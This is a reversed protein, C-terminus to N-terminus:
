SILVFDESMTEREINGDSDIFRHRVRLLSESLKAAAASATSSSSRDSSGSSFVFIPYDTHRQGPVIFDKVSEILEKLESESKVHFAITCSPDMKVIPMKRACNCHFSHLSFDLLHQQQVADQCLHPDLYILRDDQAGIFYLSHKPRGGIIGLTNPHAFLSKVCETYVPNFKEGGLRVPIFIIVGRWKDQPEQISTQPETVGSSMSAYGSSTVTSAATQSNCMTTTGDNYLNFTSRNLSSNAQTSATAAAPTGNVRTRPVIESELDMFVDNFEDFEDDISALAADGCVRDEAPFNNLYMDEPVATNHPEPPATGRDRSEKLVLSSRRRSSVSETCLRVVDGVFVTCDQAVYSTINELIPNEIFAEALAQSLIHATTAPGYWDGARKGFSSGIQVLRHISFPSETDDLFWKIIMRHIMDTKADSRSGTWRWERGLYQTVFAQALLMQGSRLMCGWGCDSTFHSGEIREFQRRYTLWIRSYYDQRFQALTQEKRRQVQVPDHFDYPKSKSQHSIHSMIASNSSTSSSKSSFGDCMNHHYLKGLLWIPSDSHFNSQLKVNWGYKVNNWLSLLKEKVRRDSSNNDLDSDPNASSAGAAATMTDASNSSRSSSGSSSNRNTGTTLSRVDNLSM